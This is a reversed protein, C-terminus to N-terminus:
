IKISNQGRLYSKFPSFEENKGLSMLKKTFLYFDTFNHRIVMGM